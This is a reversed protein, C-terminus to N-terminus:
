ELFLEGDRSPTSENSNSREDIPYHHRQFRYSLDSQPCRKLIRKETARPLKRGTGPSGGNYGHMGIGGPPHTGPPHGLYFRPSQPASRVLPQSQPLMRRPTASKPVYSAAYRGGAYPTFIATCSPAHFIQGPPPFSDNADEPRGYTLSPQSKRHAHRYGSGLPIQQQSSDPWIACAPRSTARSTLSDPIFAPYDRQPASIFTCQLSSRRSM